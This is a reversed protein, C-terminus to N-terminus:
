RFRCGGLEADWAGGHDLCRDKATWDRIEVGLLVGGAFVTMITIVTKM